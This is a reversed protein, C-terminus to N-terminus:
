EQDDVYQQDATQQESSGMHVGSDESLPRSGSPSLPVPVSTRGSPRGLVKIYNAPVLGTQGSNAAMVWGRVRPQKESPALNLQDGAQISLEDDNEAEFDYLAKATVHRGEGTVWNNQDDSSVERADEEVSKRIFRWLLWPGGVAVLVFIVFPWSCPGDEVASLPGSQESTGVARQWVDESVNPRRLRMWELVKNVMWHFTKLATLVGLIKWLHAKLRTFHDAVGLVARFSNYLAQFTSELMMAVSGFAHVISEISQFATRSNEEARQVFASPRDDVTGYGGYGHRYPAGYGSYPSYGYPSHGGFNGYSGYTGGGFRGYSHGGFPTSGGYGMFRTPERQRPPRPPPRSEPLRTRLLSGSSSHSQINGSSDGAVREWPKLPASMDFGSCVPDKNYRCTLHPAEYAWPRDAFDSYPVAPKLMTAVFFPFGFDPRHHFASPSLYETRSTKHNPGRLPTILLFDAKIPSLGRCM